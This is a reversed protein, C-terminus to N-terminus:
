PKIRNTLVGLVGLGSGVLMLGGLTFHTLLIANFKAPERSAYVVQKTSRRGATVEGTLFSEASNAVWVMSLGCIGTSILLLVLREFRQKWFRQIGYALLLMAISVAGILVEHDLIPSLYIVYGHLQPSYLTYTDALGRFRPFIEFGAARIFLEALELFPAAFFLYLAMKFCTSRASKYAQENPRRDYHDVITLLAAVILATASLAILLTPIGSLLLGGRKGPLYTYGTALEAVVFVLLFLAALALAVRSRLTFSNPRHKKM